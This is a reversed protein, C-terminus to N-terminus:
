LAPTSRGGARTEAKPSQSRPTLIWSPHPGQAKQTSSTQLAPYVLDTLNFQPHLRGVLCVCKKPASKGPSSSPLEAFDGSNGEEEKDERVNGKRWRNRPKVEYSEQSRQPPKQHLLPEPSPPSENPSEDHLPSSRPADSDVEPSIKRRKKSSREDSGEDVSIVADDFPNNSLVPSPSPERRRRKRPVHSPSSTRSLKSLKAKQKDTAISPALSTSRARAITSSRHSKVANCEMLLAYAHRLAIAYHRVRALKAKVRRKGLRRRRGRGSLSWTTRATRRRSGATRGLSTHRLIPEQGDSKTGELIRM